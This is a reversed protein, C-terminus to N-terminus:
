RPEENIEKLMNSAACLMRAQAADNSHTYTFCPPPTFIACGAHLNCTALLLIFTVRWCEIQNGMLASSTQISCLETGAELEVGTFKSWETAPAASM